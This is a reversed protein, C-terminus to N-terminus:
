EKVEFEIVKSGTKGDASIGQVIVAYKGPVDSSYFTVGPKGEKTTKVEPSWYLVNRYDPLHSSIEQQTEYVPSFFDRQLQMGPYDIAIANPDLVYGTLDGNYTVFNM